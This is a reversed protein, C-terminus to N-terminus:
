LLTPLVIWKDRDPNHTHRSLRSIDYVIYPHVTTMYCIEMPMNLNHCVNEKTTKRFNIM